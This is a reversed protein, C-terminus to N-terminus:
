QNLRDYIDFLDELKDDYVVPKEVLRYSIARIKNGDKEYSNDVVNCKCIIRAGKTLEKVEDVLKGFAEVGFGIGNGKKDKFTEDIVFIRAIDYQKDKGVQIIELDKAVFGKIIIQAM